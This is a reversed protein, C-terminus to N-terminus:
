HLKKPASKELFHLLSEVERVIRDRIEPELDSAAIQRKADEFGEIAEGLHMVGTSVLVHVIIKSVVRQASVAEMTNM